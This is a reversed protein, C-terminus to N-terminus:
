KRKKVISAPNGVAISYEEIDKVVVSGAGIISKKGINAMIVSSNGIWVDEGIYVKPYEGGQKQVPIEINEIYHQKGGNMIDVNSGITVYDSLSVDGITCNTGIYVYRGIECTSHSFISGFGIYCGWSCRKLSFVYFGKRLYCGWLGPFLSLFQSIGQFSKKKGLFLGELLYYLFIPFSILLFLSSFIAKLYKKM